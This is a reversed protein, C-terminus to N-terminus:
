IFSVIEIPKHLKVPLLWSQAYIIIVMLINHLYLKFDYINDEVDPGVSKVSRGLDNNAIFVFIVGISSCLLFMIM